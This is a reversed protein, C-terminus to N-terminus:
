IKVGSRDQVLIWKKLKLLDKTFTKFEKIEVEVSHKCCPYDIISFEESGHRDETGPQESCSYFVPAHFYCGNSDKCKGRSENKNKRYAIPICM